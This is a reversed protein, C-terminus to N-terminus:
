YLLRQRQRQQVWQRIPRRRLPRIYPFCRHLLQLDDPRNWKAGLLSQFSQSTEGPLLFESRFLQGDIITQEVLCEM